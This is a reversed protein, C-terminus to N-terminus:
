NFKCGGLSKVTTGGLENDESGVGRGESDEEVDGEESLVLVGGIDEHGALKSEATSGTNGAGHNSGADGGVLGTVELALDLGDLVLDLSQHDLRQDQHPVIGQLIM